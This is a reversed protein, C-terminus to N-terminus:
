RASRKLTAQKLSTDAFLLKAFMAGFGSAVGGTKRSGSTRGSAPRISRYVPKTKM